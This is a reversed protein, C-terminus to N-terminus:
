DKELIISINELVRLLKDDNITAIKKIIITKDIAHILHTRVVSKKPLAPLTDNENLFVDNLENRSVNSTIQVCIVENIELHTNSVILAPRPKSQSLDESYPFPVLVIDGQKYHSM